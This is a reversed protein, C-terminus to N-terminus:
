VSNLINSCVSFSTVQHRWMTNNTFDYPRNQWGSAWIINTAHEREVVSDYVINPVHEREVVSDCVINPVHEREVVTDYVINPPLYM